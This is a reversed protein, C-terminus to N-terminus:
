VSTASNETLKLKEGQIWTVVGHDFNSKLEVPFFDCVCKIGPADAFTWSYKSTM